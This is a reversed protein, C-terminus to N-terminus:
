IKKKWIIYNFYKWIYKLVYGVHLNLDLSRIIVCFVDDDDDEDDDDDYVVFVFVVDFYLCLLFMIFVHCHMYQLFFVVMMCM